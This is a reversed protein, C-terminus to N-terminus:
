ERIHATDGADNRPAVSVSKIPFNQRAHAL